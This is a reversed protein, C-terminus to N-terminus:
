LGLFGVENRLIWCVSKSGTRIIRPNQSESPFGVELFVWWFFFLIRGTKFFGILRVFERLFIVLSELVSVSGEM